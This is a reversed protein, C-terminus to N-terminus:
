HTLNTAIAIATATILLILMVAILVTILNTSKKKPKAATPKAATKPWPKYNSIAEDYNGLDGDFPTSM